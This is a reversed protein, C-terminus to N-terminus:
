WISNDSFRKSVTNAVILLVFNISTQFLDIATSFSYDGGMIGKRYIYTGIVDGTEYTLPTYLLLIKSSDTALLGGISLIFLVMITPLLGPLTVHWIKRLRGCGDMDAAEYLQQDIGSLASLYIISNWGLAQWLSSFVVINQFYSPNSLFAEPKGGFFIVVANVLGDYALFSKLMGCVVVLSIFYPMYSITQSLRKFMGNRVENLLIAFLIPAPFGLLLGKVGIMLTNRFLQWANALHFFAKFHALGVWPSGLIGATPRYKQFAILIGYMPIYSFVFLLILAPLILLYAVSNRKFDKLIKAVL